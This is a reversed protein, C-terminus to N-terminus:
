PTVPPLDTAPALPQTPTAAPAPTPLLTDLTAVEADAVDGSAAAKVAAAKLAAVAAVGAQSLPAGQVAAVANNAATVLADVSNSLRDTATSLVTAADIFEQDRDIMRREMQELDQKTALGAHSRLWDFENKRQERGERLEHVIALVSESLGEM